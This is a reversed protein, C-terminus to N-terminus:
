LSGAMGCYGHTKSLTWPSKMTAPNQVLLALPSKAEYDPDPISQWRWAMCSCGVCSREAKMPCVYDWSNSEEIIM